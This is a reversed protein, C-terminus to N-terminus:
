GPDFGGLWPAEAVDQNRRAVFRALHTKFVHKIDPKATASLDLALLDYDQRIRIHTSAVIGTDSIESSHIARIIHNNSSLLRKHFLLQRSAVLMPCPLLNLAMCLPHNRTWIPIGVLRKICSHYAVCLEHFVKKDRHVDWLECGYMNTCYAKFLKILIERNAGGLRARLTNVNYYLLRKVRRIDVSDRLNSTLMHGLYKFQDVWTLKHGNLIIVPPRSTMLHTVSHPRQPHFLMCVTKKVNFKIDRTIAFQESKRVLVELGSRSPSLLVIDDAYALVNVACGGVHCGVPSMQLECLLDDIYVNFLLPSLNGGQRVGNEVSFSDSVCNSWKIGMKQNRYWSLLLKIYASPVGRESLIKFLKSHCVRDFAKTADLFCAYVPSGLKTYYNVTEKLVYTAETTSHGSKFGFQADSTYLYPELRELLILELVKSITTSLAIARYNSTDDLLGSKDKVLPVLLSFVLGSPLNSHNLMSNLLVAIISLLDPQLNLLHDSSVLDWGAAKGSKLKAVANLVDETDIPPVDLSPELMMQNLIEDDSACTMDKFLDEFHVKWMNSIENIGTINGFSPPLTAFSNLQNKVLAWFRTPDQNCLHLAMINTKQREALKRCKRLAYKFALRSQRMQVAIPGEKPSGSERWLLFTKRALEHKSKVLSNWGPIHKPHGKHQDKLQINQVGSKTIAETVSEYSTALKHIHSAQQCNEGCMTGLERLDQHLPHLEGRIMENYSLFDHSKASSWDPAAM